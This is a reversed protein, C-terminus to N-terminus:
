WELRFALQIERPARATTPRGFTPSNVTMDPLGFQAHNWANFFEGRLQTNVRETIRTNKIISVDWNNLGPIEVINRGTNGFTGFPPLVFCATNFYENITRESRALNGNDQCGPVANAREAYSGGVNARHGSVRVLYYNGTMFSTITNLSWGSM